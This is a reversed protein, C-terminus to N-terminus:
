EVTTRDDLPDFPAICFGSTNCTTGELCDSTAACETLQPHCFGSSCVEDALCHSDVTCTSLNWDIDCGALPSTLVIIAVIACLKWIAKHM